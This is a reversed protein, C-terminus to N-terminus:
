HSRRDEVSSRASSSGLVEHAARSVERVREDPALDWAGECRTMHLMILSRLYLYSGYGLALTRNCFHCYYNM